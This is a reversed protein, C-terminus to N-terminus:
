RGSGKNVYERIAVPSFKPRSTGTDVLLKRFRPQRWIKRFTNYPIGLLRAAERLNVPPEYPTPSKPVPEPELCRALLLGLVQACLPRPLSRAFTPDAVLEALPKPVEISPAM